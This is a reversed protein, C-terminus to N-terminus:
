PIDVKPHDILMFTIQGGPFIDNNCVEKEHHSHWIQWYGNTFNWAGNGPPLPADGGLFPSGSYLLGTTVDKQAPLIVPFPKGHDDCWESTIDDYGDDNGDNCSHAYVPDNPDGYIDWGLKEGTWEFIADVTTGPYINLTYDSYALDTGSGPASELLRGDRAIYTFNNSHTHFPHGDRGAGIVRMLIREGPHMRALASYPQNPLLPSNPATLVTDPFCRGNLFWNVPDYTTNDIEDIRGHEVLLHVTPDMETHLFLYERDYATDPHDYAEPSGPVFDAPRVIIAGVLGMEIQLAPKTGSQYMYTGPSNADFTYTCVTVGDPPAERTLEGFIGGSATANAQGPFVM